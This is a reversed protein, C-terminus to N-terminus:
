MPCTPEQSQVRSLHTHEGDRAQFAPRSRPRLSPHGVQDVQVNGPCGSTANLMNNVLLLAAARVMQSSFFSSPSSSFSSPSPSRTLPALRGIVMSAAKETEPHKNRVFLARSTDLFRVRRPRDANRAVAVVDQAVAHPYTLLYTSRLLNGGYSYESRSVPLRAECTRQECRSRDELM